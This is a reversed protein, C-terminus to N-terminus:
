IEHCNRWRGNTLHVDMTTRKMIGQQGGLFVSWINVGAQSIRSNQCTFYMNTSDSSSVAQPVWAEALELPVVVLGVVM